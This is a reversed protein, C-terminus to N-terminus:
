AELNWGRLVAERELVALRQEITRKGSYELLDSASGNFWDLDVAGVIGPITGTSSYQWIKWDTWDRFKYYGDSWPGTLTLSYRAAWLDCLSFLPHQATYYDWWTKRTYILPYKGYKQYVLDICKATISTICEQTQNRNLECDLVVPVDAQKDGMAKFFLAMQAEASIKRINTPDAPAIVHYATRLMGSNGAGNWHSEFSGDSYYDGVTARIAALKVKSAVANWDTVVQYKSIDIVPTRDSM